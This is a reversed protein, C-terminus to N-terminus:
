STKEEIKTEESLLRRIARAICAVSRRPSFDDVPAEVTKFTRGCGACYRYRVLVGDEVPLTRGVGIAGGCEECRFGRRGPGRGAM